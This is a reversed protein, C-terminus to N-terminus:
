RNDRLQSYTEKLSENFGNLLIPLAALKQSSGTYPKGQEKSDIIIGVNPNTLNKIIMAIEKLSYKQKYSMNLDKPLSQDYNEIYYQIVKILDQVHFFDMKKDQHVIISKNTFARYFANKIFRDSDEEPSFCGFLRLNIINSNHRLIERAILNKSLGYYDIPIRELIYKEEISDILKSRDFAAGSGFTFMLKFKDSQKELNKYMSINKIFEDFCVKRGRRGGKIATHLVIDIDHNCFFDAVHKEKTVDLNNRNTCIISHETNSLLRAFERGLFGNAGTILINM